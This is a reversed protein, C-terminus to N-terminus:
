RRVGEFLAARPDDTLEAALTELAAKAKASVKQPVAVEVTALLDGTKTGNVIGRGKIRFTRGSATGAPIKLTVPEDLTPVRVQAGLTAEPYTVPVTVTLNNGRRGFVRHPTVHVLVYLDGAPGGRDGPSGKGKIRIRQGDEVGAPIRVTLTRERTTQGSGRCDPCPQAIIRGTGRCDRCPESFAFGGANRTTLGAGGCTPCVDPMTGPAAGSGGCTQCAHPSSLRLPVTVGRVAEAFDLTVESEIDVGRRPQRGGGRPGGGGFLGGLMDGLGGAGRGGAFLDDINVTFGGGPGASYAGGGFGGPRFAGSAFLARADDYEKRRKDDALVDYAESIEKFRADEGKNADPHHLRALKRYAKKIEAQSADKSVGLAAYYDKEIFDKTSV